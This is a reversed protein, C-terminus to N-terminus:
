LGIRSFGKSTNSKLGTEKSDSKSVGTEKSDPKGVHSDSNVFAGPPWNQLIASNRNQHNRLKCIM